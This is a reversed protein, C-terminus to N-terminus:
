GAVTSGLAGNTTQELLSDALMSHLLEHDTREVDDDLSNEM